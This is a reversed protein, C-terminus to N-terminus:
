IKVIEISNEYIIAYTKSNILMLGAINMPATYLTKDPDDAKGCIIDRENNYLITEGYVDIFDPTNEITCSYVLEGNKNYLNLSPINQHIYSIIRNGKTDHATHTIFDDDFRKDYLADSYENISSVSSDGSTYIRKGNNFVDFVLTGTLEIGSIPQPSAVDFVMVYSTVDTETNVLSVAVLRTKLISVSTIYNVGSAWSFIEEGRKNIVIVAGKYASRETILAIDGRESVDCSLIKNDTDLSFLLENDKYLSLQTGNKAAIAIYDGATSLLPNPVNTTIEWKQEGSATIYCLYNSKACVIGSGYAAFGSSGAEAFPFRVTGGDAAKYQSTEEERVNDTIEVTHQTGASTQSDSSLAASFNDQSVAASDDGEVPNLLGQDPNIGFTDFLMNMNYEFNRKYTGIIGTDTIYFGFGGVLVASIIMTIWLPKLAYWIGRRKRRIIHDSYGEDEDEDYYDNSEYSSSNDDDYEDDYYFSDDDEFYDDDTDTQINSSTDTHNESLPLGDLGLSGLVEEEVPQSAQENSQPIRMTEGMETQPEEQSVDKENSKEHINVAITDGGLADAPASEKPKIIRTDGMSENNDQNDQEKEAAKEENKKDGDYYKILDNLIEDRDKSM